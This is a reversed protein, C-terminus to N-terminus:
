LDSRVVVLAPLDAVGDVALHAGCDRLDGAADGRQLAFELLLDIFPEGFFLPLQAVADLLPPGDEVGPHAGDM